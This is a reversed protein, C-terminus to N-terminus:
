GGGTWSETYWIRGPGCADLFDVDEVTIEGSGVVDPGEGSVATGGTGPGVLAFGEGGEVVFGLTFGLVM